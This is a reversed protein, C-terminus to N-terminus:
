LCIHIFLFQFIASEIQFSLYAFIYLLFFFYSIAFFTYLEPFRKFFPMNSATMCYFFSLFSTNQFGCFEMLAIFLKYIGFFTSRVIQVWNILTSYKNIKKSITLHSSASNYKYMHIYGFNYSILFVYSNLYVKQMGGTRLTNQVQM